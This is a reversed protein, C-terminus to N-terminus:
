RTISTFGPYIFVVTQNAKVHWKLNFVQRNEFWETKMEALRVALMSFTMETQLDRKDQVAELNKM